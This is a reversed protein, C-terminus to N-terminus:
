VRSRARRTTPTCRASFVLHGTLAARIAIEATELDRIEGVMIVNPDQRLIHRLGMAFTLGIDSRVAIQNIGKLEYEVPEEITIIRKHVSNIASLFAYLSTSKGSGTPGTVLFIGHPKVIIERIANGGEPFGLKDLSLFIKGRTLLRLSVSEGYVTPVTSVRIDIEEGKIRVNIRGDQPLRKEAINMGSM